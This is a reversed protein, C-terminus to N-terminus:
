DVTLLVVDALKMKLISNNVTFNKFGVNCQANTLLEKAWVNNNRATQVTQLKWAQIGVLLNTSLATRVDLIRVKFNGLLM